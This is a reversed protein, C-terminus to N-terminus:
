FLRKEYSHLNHVGGEIQASATRKEVKLTGHNSADHLQKISQCGIDQLSKQVGTYLYGGIFRDADNDSILRTWTIRLISGWRDWRQLESRCIFLKM